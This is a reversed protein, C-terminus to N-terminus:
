KELLVRAVELAAQTTQINRALVKGDPGIIHISSPSGMYGRPFKQTDEFQCHIGPIQHDAARRRTTEMEKDFGINILVWDGEKRM